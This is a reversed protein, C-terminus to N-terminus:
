SIALMEAIKEANIKQDDLIMSHIDDVNEPVTV